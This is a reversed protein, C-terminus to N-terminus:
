PLKKRERTMLEVDVILSEVLYEVLNLLTTALLALDRNEDARRPERFAEEKLLEVIKMLLKLKLKANGM